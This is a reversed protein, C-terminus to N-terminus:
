RGFSVVELAVFILACTFAYPLVSLKDELMAWAAVGLSLLAGLLGVAAWVGLFFRKQKKSPMDEEKAFETFAVVPNPV